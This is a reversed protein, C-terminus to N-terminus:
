GKLYRISNRADEANKFVKPNEKYAKKALTLIAGTPFRSLLKKAIESKISM